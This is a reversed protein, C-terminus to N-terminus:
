YHPPKSEELPFYIQEEGDSDIDKLSEEMEDFSDDDFNREPISM